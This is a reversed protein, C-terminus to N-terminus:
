SDNNKEEFFNFQSPDAVMRCDTKTHVATHFGKASTASRNIRTPMKETFPKPIFAGGPRCQM